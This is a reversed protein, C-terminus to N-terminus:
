QIDGGLIDGGRIEVSLDDTFQLVTVDSDDVIVPRVLSAYDYIGQKIPYDGASPLIRAAAFHIYREGATSHNRNEQATTPGSGHQTRIGSDQAQPQRFIGYSLILSEKAALRYTQNLTGTPVDEWAAVTTTSYSGTAHHTHVQPWDDVRLAIIGTCACDAVGATNSQMELSITKSGPTLTVKRMAAYPLKYSASIVQMAADCYTTGDVNIRVNFNSTTVSKGVSAGAMILYDGAYPVDFTVSGMTEYSGTGATSNTFDDGAIDRVGLKFAHLGAERYTIIGSGSPLIFALALNLEATSDMTAWFISPFSSMDTGAGDPYHDHQIGTAPLFEDICVISFPGAPEAGDAQTGAAVTGIVLYRDGETGSVVLQAIYLSGASSSTPGVAEIYNYNRNDM